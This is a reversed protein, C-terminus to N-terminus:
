PITPIKPTSIQMDLNFIFIALFKQPHNQPFKQHSFLNYLAFIQVGESRSGLGGRFL